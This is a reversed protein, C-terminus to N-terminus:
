DKDFCTMIWLATRHWKELSLGMAGSRGLLLSIREATIKQNNWGNLIQKFDDSILLQEPSYGKENLWLSFSHWESPTLPKPGGHSLANFRVTLLLVAQDKIDIKM